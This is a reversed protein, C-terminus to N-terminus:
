CRKILFMTGVLTGQTDRDNETDGEVKKFAEEEEEHEKKMLQTDFIEAYYTGKPAETRNIFNDESDLGLLKHADESNGTRMSLNFEPFLIVCCLNFPFQQNMGFNKRIFDEYALVNKLSLFVPNGYGWGMGPNIAIDILLLNLQSEHNLAYRMARAIMEVKNKRSGVQINQNLPVLETAEKLTLGAALRLQKEEHSLPVSPVNRNVLCAKGSRLIRCNSGIEHDELVTLIRGSSIERCLTRYAPTYASTETM